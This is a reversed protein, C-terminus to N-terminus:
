ITPLTIVFEVGGSAPNAAYIEGGHLRAIERCLSLGLGSGAASSSKSRFFRDFIRPLDDAAIAPGSNAIQITAIGSGAKLGIAIWGRPPTFKLANDVVNVVLRRLYDRNGKVIVGDDLTKRLELQGAEVIPEIAVTVERILPAVQIPDRAVAVDHDLRALTLLEDSMRCLVETEHVAAAIAATYEEASRERTLTVELGARLVALPTRLEHAADAAFRREIESARAVRELLANIADTLRAVEDQVSSHPLRRNLDRPEIAGLGAVLVGIPTLARGALWYGGAISSVLALPLIILLAAQLRAIVGHVRRADVGDVLYASRGALTLPTIAFRFIRRSGDAIQASTPRRPPPLDATPDCAEALLQNQSLLRVCRAPGLDREAALERVMAAAPAVTGMRQITEAATDAEERLASDLQGWQERAFVIMVAVGAVLVIATLVAAWYITLRLRITM